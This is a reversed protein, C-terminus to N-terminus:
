DAVCLFRVYKLFTPPAEGFQAAWGIAAVTQALPHPVPLPVRGALRIATSLPLVGDGAINFTGPVDRLVALKFAAIADVEHLFQMLPDFGMMTPVMRRSLFRTLYNNVTPGLIPALRLITVVSGHARQAFRLAESEAAMKDAFFPERSPARLPHRESLFNPNSPHAGYLLTQSWLVLKRVQAHRSAVLVHMTGVSELEHAWAAAHTPSALFALHVLTDVREAALIEALRAEATPQTLDVDYTRTKKGATPPPKIDLSVIRHVRDDEELLGILNAGLFSAAGTLAVVRTRASPPAVSTSRREALPAPRTPETPDGLRVETDAPRGAFPTRPTDDSPMPPAFSGLFRAQRVSPPANGQYEPSGSM